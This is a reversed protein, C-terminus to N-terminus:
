RWGGTNQGSRQGERGHLGPEHRNVTGGTPSGTTLVRAPCASVRFVCFGPWDRDVGTPGPLVDPCTLPLQAAGVQSGVNARHRTRNGGGGLTSLPCRSCGQLHAPAWGPPRPHRTALSRAVLASAPHSNRGRSDQSRRGTTTCETITTCRNTKASIVVSCSGRWGM